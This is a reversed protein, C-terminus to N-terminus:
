TTPPTLGEEKFLDKRYFMAMPGTDQPVGYVAGNVTVSNWASTTYRSKVSEVGLTDLNAVENTLAFQPLAFYEIQAVDPAGKGAKIATELKTYEAASSGVDVVTVKVDPHIKTYENALAQMSTTSLWTWFTLTVPGSSTASPTNTGSSSCAAITVAATAAAAVVALRRFRRKM